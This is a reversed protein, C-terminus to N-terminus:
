VLPPLRELAKSGSPVNLFLEVIAYRLTTHIIWQLPMRAIETYDVTRIAPRVFSPLFSPENQPAPGLLSREVRHLLNVVAMHPLDPTGRNPSLLPFPNLCFVISGGWMGCLCIVGGCRRLLSPHSILSRFSLNTASTRAAARASNREPRTRTPPPRTLGMRPLPALPTSAFMTEDALIFPACLSAAYPFGERAPSSTRAHM